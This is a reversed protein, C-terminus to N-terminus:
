LKLELTQTNILIEVTFMYVESEIEEISDEQLPEVGNIRIIYRDFLIDEDSKGEEAVNGRSSTAEYTFVIYGPHVCQMNHPCRNDSEISTIKFELDNYRFTEGVSMRKVHEGTPGWMYTYVEDQGKIELERSDLLRGVEDFAQVKYTEVLRPEKPIPLEWRDGLLEMDGVKRETSTSVEWVELSSANYISALFIGRDMEFMHIRPSMQNQISLDIQNSFFFIVVMVVVSVSLIIATGKKTSIM